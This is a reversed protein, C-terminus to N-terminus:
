WTKMKLAAAKMQPGTEHKLKALKQALNLIQDHHDPCNKAARSVLFTAKMKSDQFHIYSQGSAFTLKLIGKPTELKRPFDPRLLCSAAAAPKKHVITKMSSSSAPRKLCLVELLDDAEKEDFVQAPVAASASPCVQKPKKPSRLMAPFGDSDMTLASVNSDHPQLKRKVKDSSQNCESEPYQADIKSILEALKKIDPKSMKHCCQEFRFPTKIRRCHALLTIVRETRQGAWAKDALPGKNISKSKNVTLIADRIQAMLSNASPALEVLSTLFDNLAVLGKGHVAMPKSINEYVGLNRLITSHKLLVADLDAQTCPLPSESMAAMAFIPCVTSTCDVVGTYFNFAM